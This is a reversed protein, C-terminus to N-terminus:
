IIRFYKQWESHKLQFSKIDTRDPKYDKEPDLDAGRNLKQMARRDLQQEGTRIVPIYTTYVLQQRSDDWNSEYVYEEGQEANYHVPPKSYCECVQDKPLTALVLRNLLHWATTHEKVLRRSRAWKLYKLVAADDDCKEVEKMSTEFAKYIRKKEIEIEGHLERKVAPEKSAKMRRTLSSINVHRDGLEQEYKDFNVSPKSPSPSPGTDSQPEAHAKGEKEKMIENFEGLSPYAIDNEDLLRTLNKQTQKTGEPIEIGANAIEEKLYDSYIM